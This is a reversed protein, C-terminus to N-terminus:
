APTTHVTTQPVRCGLHGAVTSLPRRGSVRDGFAAKDFKAGRIFLVPVILGQAGCSWEGRVAAGDDVASQPDDRDGM